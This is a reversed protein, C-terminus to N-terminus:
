SSQTKSGQTYYTYATAGTPDRFNHTDPARKLIKWSTYLGIVGNGLGASDTTLDRANGASLQMNENLKAFGRKNGLGMFRTAKLWGAREAATESGTIIGVSKLALYDSYTVAIMCKDQLATDLLFGDIGGPGMQPTDPPSFIPANAFRPVTIEVTNEVWNAPDLAADKSQNTIKAVGLNSLLPMSFQYRGVFGNPNVLAEGNPMVSYRGRSATAAVDEKYMDFDISM